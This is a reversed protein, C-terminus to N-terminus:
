YLQRINWTLENLSLRHQLWLKIIVIAGPQNNNVVAHFNLVCPCLPRSMLYEWVLIIAIFGYDFLDLFAPLLSPCFLSM